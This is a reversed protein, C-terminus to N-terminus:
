RGPRDWGANAKLLRNLDKKVQLPDPAVPSRWMWEGRPDVLYLHASLPQGAAPELWRALAEPNARLVQLAQAQGLKAQLEASLPAEDNVLWVKDLKDMEKGLMTRLQQQLYLHKECEGVCSGGDVVVLLWQQHLSKAAVPRGQLDRLALAEPILRPPDILSGYGQGRPQIVYFTFYSAIVPLACLFVVWAMMWRGRRTREASTLGELAGVDHVTLQAPDASPAHPASTNTGSM